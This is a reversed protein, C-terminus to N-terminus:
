AHTRRGDASRPSVPGFRRGIAVFPFALQRVFSPPVDLGPVGYAAPKESSREATGFLTDWFSFAIGFNRHDHREEASHHVRHFAPSVLLRGLPGFSWPLDCHALSELLVTVPVTVWLLPVGAAQPAGLLTFPVFQVLTRFFVDGAHFRFNTLATLRDQSHHVAHFLWLPGAAHTMRHAWYSCLDMVVFLVLFAAAAPLGSLLDQRLLPVFRAVLGNLARQLPAAALFSFVGGLYFVTYAADTLLGRNWYGETRPHRLWPTVLVLGTVVAISALMERSSWVALAKAALFALAESAESV